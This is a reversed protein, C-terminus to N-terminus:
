SKEKLVTQQTLFRAASGNKTLLQLTYLCSTCQRSLILAQSQATRSQAIQACLKTYKIRFLNFHPLAKLMQKMCLLQCQWLIVCLDYWLKIKFLSM